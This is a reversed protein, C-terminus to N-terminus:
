SYVEFHYGITYSNQKGIGLCNFFILFFVINLNADRRKSGDSFRRSMSVERCSQEDTCCNGMISLAVELIQEHPKSLFRVMIPVGGAERFLLIGNKDKVVDTRLKTLGKVIVSKDTSAKIVALINEVLGRNM